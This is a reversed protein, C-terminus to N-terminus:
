RGLALRNVLRKPLGAKSMKAQVAAIDYPFRVYEIERAEVDYVCACGDPNGDRPQGVSGVNILYRNGSELSILRGPEAPIVNVDFATLEFIKPIHTHGNFMLTEQFGEFHYVAQYPHLLYEWEDPHMPTAHVLLYEKTRHVYPLAALWNREERSLQQRTWQIAERALKNLYKDSKEGAAVADHNGKAAQIGQAQLQEICAVPDPGYGVVDGACLIRDVNRKALAEIAANLAELNAHVDSIFGLKM